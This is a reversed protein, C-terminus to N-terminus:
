IRKFKLGGHNVGRKKLPVHVILIELCEKVTKSM